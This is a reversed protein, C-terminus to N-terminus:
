DTDDHDAEKDSILELRDIHAVDEPKLGDEAETGEQIAEVRHELLRRYLGKLRRGEMQVVQGAFHLKMRDGPEFDIRTLYAYSMGHCQGDAKRVDLMIGERGRSKPARVEDFANRVDGDDVEPEHRLGSRAMIRDVASPKPKTADM